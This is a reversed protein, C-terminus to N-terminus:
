KRKFAPGNGGLRIGDRLNKYAVHAPDEVMAAPAAVQIIHSSIPQFDARYHNSSKLVLIQMKKPDIGLVTFYSQDAAQMRDSVVVIRVNGIKLQALKGLDLEMGGALPGTGTFKGEYLKVVQFTGHFPKQDPMLKGGLDITIESGEGAKHAQEAAEVDFMLGLATEPADQAVLQELLWVTDSTSGGGPNDLGDSIIVPKEENKALEIAEKVGQEADPLNSTFASERSVFGEYLRDVAIDAAEQTIAYAFVSPGTFEADAPPFGEMISVCLVCSDKEVEDITAYVSKCPETFTSCTSLVPLFPIQRYAKFLPGGGFAHEMLEACREGTKYFDIHPYERCSVLATSLDISEETINGHLDLSAVIPIDGVVDRIRRIIETEGDNFGEYVMAGHLQLFVGDFPGKESIEATMRGMVKNFAELEVQNSPATGASFLLEIEYGLKEASDSFGLIASNLKQGKMTLYEEVGSFKLSEYPTPIPSFTNTEHSFGAIAIRKM